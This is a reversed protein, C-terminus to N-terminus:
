TPNIASEGLIFGWWAFHQALMRKPSRNTPTVTCGAHQNPECGCSCLTPASVSAPWAFAGLPGPGSVAGAHVDHRTCAAWPCAALSGPLARVRGLVGARCTWSAGYQAGWSLPLM